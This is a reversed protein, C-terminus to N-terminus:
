QADLRGVAVGGAARGSASQIFARFALSGDFVPGQGGQPQLALVFHAVEDGPSFALDAAPVGGAGNRAAGLVLTDHLPGNGVVSAGTDFASRFTAPDLSVKTSDLPLDLAVGRLSVAGAAKLRLTLSTCPAACADALLVLGTSAAPAAYALGTGARPTVTVTATRTETDGTAGKATLTYTTTQSPRVTMSKAPGLDAQGIAWSQATGDWSLTAPDGQAITSPAASFSAISVPQVVRAAATVVTVPPMYGISSTASLTYVTTTAPTDTAQGSLPLFSDPLLGGTIQLVVANNVKWTITRPTNPPAQAPLVSFRVVAAAGPPVQPTVTISKYSSGVPNSARLTYVTPGKPLVTVPSGNVEGPEPIISIAEADKVSFSLHVTTAFAPNANDM